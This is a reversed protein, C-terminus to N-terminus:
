AVVFRDGALAFRVTAPAGFGVSDKGNRIPQIITASFIRDALYSKAKNAEAVNGNSNKMWFDFERGLIKEIEAGPNALMKNTAQVVGEEYHNVGMLSFGKATGKGFREVIAEVKLAGIGNRMVIDASVTSESSASGTSSQKHAVVKGYIQSPLDGPECDRLAKAHGQIAGGYTKVVAIVTTTAVAAVLGKNFARRSMTESGQKELWAYAGLGILGAVGLGILAQQGDHLLTDKLAADSIFDGMILVGNKQAIVSMVKPADPYQLIQSIAM